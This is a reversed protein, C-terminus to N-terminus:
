SLRPTECALSFAPHYFPDNVIRDRWRAVFAARQEAHRQVGTPGPRGRSASELHCLVAQPTWMTAFGREGLRLCLDIDNYEVPFASADFGGVAEFLDRRVALCAGTVASVRRCRGLAGGYGSAGGPARRYLHGAADNLGLVIGAHQITGDPYLLKAGVAGVGPRVALDVLATLWGPDLAEVDNNLFVVIEGEGQGAAANCIAAYNFAGPAPVVRVRPDAAVWDLLRRAAVEDSDNDAVIIRLREYATRELLSALCRGLLDARNRTPIVIDVPPCPSAAKRALRPAVPPVSPAARHLLVRGLHIFGTSPGGPPRTARWPAEDAEGPWAFLPRRTGGPGPEDADFAVTRLGPEAAFAEVLTAVAEPALRDGAALAVHALADDGATGDLTLRWAPCSQRELSIRTAGWGPHAPDSGAFVIPPGALAEPRPRDLGEPEPPRRRAARWRDYSSLPEDNLAAALRRRASDRRGAVHHLLGLLSSRPARLLRLVLAVPALRSIQEIRFRDPPVGPGPDIALRAGRPRWGRWVGRGCVPAPLIITDEGGDPLVLRLVPRVAPVLFSAAYRLEVWGPGRAGEAEVELWVPERSRRVATM